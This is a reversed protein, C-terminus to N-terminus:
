LEPAAKGGRARGKIDEKEQISDDVSSVKFQHTDLSGNVRGWGMYGIYAVSDSTTIKEGCPRVRVANACASFNLSAISLFAASLFSVSSFGAHSTSYWCAWDATGAVPFWGDYCM